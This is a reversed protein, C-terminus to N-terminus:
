RSFNKLKKNSDKIIQRIEKLYESRNYKRTFRNAYELAQQYREEQKTFVSNEALLYSAKSMLFRVREVDKSDPFDKLLNEFAHTASQYQKLNYYLNAQDFAKLELKVRLEDIYNNCDKLRDSGPYTNAFLQFSEIADETYQQDLRFSPSLQYYNYAQMFDADERFESNPFTNAFNKFYYAGLIYNNLEYHTRAYNYYVTESDSKGRISNLVLEYLTQAKLFEKNKFYTNAKKMILDTDGSTRVAEFESKCGVIGFLLTFFTCFIILRGNM